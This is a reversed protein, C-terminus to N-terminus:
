PTPAELKAIEESARARGAIADNVPLLDFYDLTVNSTVLEFRPIAKEYWSKALSWHELCKAPDAASHSARWAQVSGLGTESAGLSYQLQLNDGERAIEELVDVNREFISAAEEIEGVALLSRGLHMSTHARDFRTQVNSADVDLSAQLVLAARAHEIASRYDQMGNLFYALNTRDAILSRVYAANTGGTAAVLEDDIELAQRTLALLQDGTERSFDAGSITSAIMGYGTALSHAVDLDDAFERHIDELVEVGKRAYIIADDSGTFDLNFAHALYAGALAGRTVRDAQGDVLAEFMRVAQASNVVASSTDALLMQLRSQRQYLGALLNLASTNDADTAVIPELMSIAKAYSEFAARPEGKSAAFAQGQMDGVKQYAAALEQKLEPDNGAEESLTNLYELATEVLLERAATSGPLEEIADHVEFMFSNALNRVSSFHREARERQLEAVRGQEAAVRAERVSIVTAGVLTLAVLVTAAIELKHRRFFKRARYGLRDGRAIVPLGEVYRRVDESLREVSAYRNEPEKRLAQLVIADLDRDLREGRGGNAAAAAESPRAPEKECVERIADQVSDVATAYPSRGTLLLNLVVGLSYVDSATTIPKGLVQEPSSYGPTLARLFTVTPAAGAEGAGADLLKAIGFDLLKVTGEATVLINGPKLDRHIVLRQHAYSVAACVDLFLRLRERIRLNHAVCYRDIPEGEVLEMVLYPSGEDTAGGDILRAINPHELNALIQREARLRQLIFGAHYGGPVLKIAVEKDYERDARRGRYVDAMGGHGLLAVIEYPGIRRGLWHEEAVGAFDGTIHEAAPRDVIAEKDDHADLLSDVEARLDTDDRCAEGLYATREADPLTSAASFIDKVRQWREPTV